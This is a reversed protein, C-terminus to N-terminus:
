PVHDADGHAPRRRPRRRRRQPRRRLAVGAPAPAGLPPEGGREEAGLHHDLFHRPAPDGRVCGCGDDVRARARGHALALTDGRSRYTFEPGSLTTAITVLIADAPARSAGRTAPAASAAAGAGRTSTSPGYPRPAACTQIRFGCPTRARLMTTKAWPQVAAVGNSQCRRRRSWRTERPLM